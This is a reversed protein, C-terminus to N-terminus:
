EFRWPSLGLGQMLILAVKSNLGFVVKNGGPDRQIVSSRLVAAHTIYRTRMPKSDGLDCRIAIAGDVMNRIRALHCELFRDRARHRRARHDEMMSADQMATLYVPGFGPTLCDYEVKRGEVCLRLIFQQVILNRQFYVSSSKSRNRIMRMQISRLYGIANAFEPLAASGM